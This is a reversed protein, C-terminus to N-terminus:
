PIGPLELLDHLSRLSYGIGPIGMGIQSNTRTIIAASMTAIRKTNNRIHSPLLICCYLMCGRLSTNPNVLASVPRSSHPDATLRSRRAITCLLTCLLLGFPPAFTVCLRYYLLCLRQWFLGDPNQIIPVEEHFAGTWARCAFSARNGCRDFQDLAM